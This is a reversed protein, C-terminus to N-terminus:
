GVLSSILDNLCEVYSSLVVPTDSPVFDTVKSVEAAHETMVTLLDTRSASAAADQPINPLSDNIVSLRNDTDEMIKILRDYIPRMVNM